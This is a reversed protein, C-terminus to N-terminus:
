VDSGVKLVELCGFCERRKGEGEGDVKGHRAQCGRCFCLDLVRQHRELLLAAVLGKRSGGALERLWSKPVSTGLAMVDVMDALRDWYGVGLLECIDEVSKWADENSEIRKSSQKLEQSKLTLAKIAIDQLGTIGWLRAIYVVGVLDKMELGVNIQSTDGYMWRLNNTQPLTTGAGPSPPDTPIAATKSGSM